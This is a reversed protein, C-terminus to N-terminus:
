RPQLRRDSQRGERGGRARRYLRRGLRCEEAGRAFAVVSVRSQLTHFNSSCQGVSVARMQLPWLWRAPALERLSPTPGDTFTRERAGALTSGRPQAPPLAFLQLWRLM